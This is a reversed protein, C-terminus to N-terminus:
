KGPYPAFNVTYSKGRSSHMSISFVVVDLEDIPPASFSDDPSNPYESYEIKNGWIDWGEEALLKKLNSIKINRNADVKTSIINYVLDKLPYGVKIIIPTAFGADISLPFSLPQGDLTTLGLNLGSYSWKGKKSLALVEYDYINIPVSGNNALTAVWQTEIIGSYERISASQFSVDYDDARQIVDFSLSESVEIHHRWMSYGLTILSLLLASLAFSLALKNHKTM